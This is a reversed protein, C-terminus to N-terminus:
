SINNTKILECILFRLMPLASKVIRDDNIEGPIKEGHFINNRIQYLVKIVTKLNNQECLIIINKSALRDIDEKYLSKEKQMNIVYYRYRLNESQSFIEKKLSEKLENYIPQIEIKKDTYWNEYEEAFLQYIIDETYKKSISLFLREPFLREPFDIQLTWDNDSIEKVSIKASINVNNFENDSRANLFKKSKKRDINARELVAKDYYLNYCIANFAIWESIFSMYNDESKESLDHWSTILKIQKEDFYPM